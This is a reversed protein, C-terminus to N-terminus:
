KRNKIAQENANKIEQEATPNSKAFKAIEERIDKQGINMDKMFNYQEPKIKSGDVFGSMMGKLTATAQEYLQIRQVSDMFEVIGVNKLQEKNYKFGPHNILSSILPFLVSGQNKDANQKALQRDYDVMERKMRKKIKGTEVKPFINFMHRLYNRFKFYTLEDIEIDNLVDYLVFSEQNELEGQENIIQKEIPVPKFKSFDLDGFLISTQEPKLESVMSWWMKFDDIQTWDIGNDWLAVRFYTTNGVFLHLMFYFASEGGPYKAIDLITPQLVKIKDTIQFENNFYLYLMDLKEQYTDKTIM